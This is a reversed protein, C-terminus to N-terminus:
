SATLTWEVQSSGAGRIVLEHRGPALGPLLVWYGRDTVDKGEAVGALASGDVAQLVYPQRNDVRTPTLPKGDLRVDMRTEALPPPSPLGNPILENVVPALIPRRSPVVCRRQKQGRPAGGGLLWIGVPQKLGCLEPNFYQSAPLAAARRYWRRVALELDVTPTSAVATPTHIVKSSPARATRGADPHSCGAMAIFVAVAVAAHRVLNRSTCARVAQLRKIKSVISGTL